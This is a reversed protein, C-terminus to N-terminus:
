IPLSSIQQFIEEANKGEYEILVEENDGRKLVLSLNETEDDYWVEAVTDNAIREFVINPNIKSILQLISDKTTYDVVGNSEQIQKMLDKDQFVFELNRIIGDLERPTM